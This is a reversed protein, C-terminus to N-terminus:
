SNLIQFFYEVELQGDDPLDTCHVANHIKDIGFKARLTHQRLHRAIDPDSPGVFERFSKPANEHHTIEMAICPGSCLENVMSSYENVVGKYVEYFEEANNEALNFM